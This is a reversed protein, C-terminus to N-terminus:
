NSHANPVGRRYARAKWLNKVTAMENGGRGAHRQNYIAVRREDPMQPDTGHCERDVELLKAWKTKRGGRPRKPILAADAGDAISSDEHHQEPAGTIGGPPSIALKAAASESEIGAVIDAGTFDSRQSITTKFRPWAMEWFGPTLWFNSAAGMGATARAKQLFEFLQSAVQKAADHATECQLEGDRFLPKFSRNRSPPLM